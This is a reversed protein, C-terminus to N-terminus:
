IHILSLNYESGDVEVNIEALRNKKYYQKAADQANTRLDFSICKIAGNLYSLDIETDANAQLVYNNRTKFDGGQVIYPAQLMKNTLEEDTIATYFVLKCSEILNAENVTGTAVESIKNTNCEIQLNNISLKALPFPAQRKLAPNAFRNLCQFPMPFIVTGANATGGIASGLIKKAKNYEQTALQEM